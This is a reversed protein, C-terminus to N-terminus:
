TDSGEVKRFKLQFSSTGESLPRSNFPKSDRLTSTDDGENIGM